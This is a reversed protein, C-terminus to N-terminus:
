EALATHCFVCNDDFEGAHCMRCGDGSENMDHAVDKFSNLENPDDSHCVRCSGTGEGSPLGTHHCDTCSTHLPHVRDFETDFAITGYLNVNEVCVGNACFEGEECDDNTECAGAPPACTDGEEDCTEDAACPDTGAQCNCGDCTEQGNCYLGDDCDADQTCDCAPGGNPCGAVVFILGVGLLGTALSVVASRYKLGSNEM